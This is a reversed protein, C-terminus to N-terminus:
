KKRRKDFELCRECFYHDSYPNPRQLKMFLFSKHCRDCVQNM